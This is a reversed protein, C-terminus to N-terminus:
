GIPNVDSNAVPQSVQDDIHTIMFHGTADFGLHLDDLGMGKLVMVTNDTGMGGLGGISVWADEGIQEARIEKPSVIDTFRFADGAHFGFIADTGDQRGAEITCNGSGLIFWDDGKSGKLVDGGGDFGGFMLNTGDPPTPLETDSTDSIFAM